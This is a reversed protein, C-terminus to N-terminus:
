QINSCGLLKFFLEVVVIKTNYITPLTSFNRLLSYRGNGMSTAMSTQSSKALLKYPNLSISVVNEFIGASHGM